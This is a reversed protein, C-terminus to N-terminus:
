TPLAHGHFNKARHAIFRKAYFLFAGMEAIMGLFILFVGLVMLTHWFKREEAGM